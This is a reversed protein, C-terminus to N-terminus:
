AYIIRRVIESFQSEDKLLDEECKIRRKYSVSAFNGAYWHIGITNQNSITEQAFRQNFLAYIMNLLSVNPFMSLPFFISEDIIGFTDISNSNNLYNEIDGFVSTILKSGFCEYNQPDYFYPAQEFLKNYFYNYWNSAGAMISVPMYGKRLEGNKAETVFKTFSVNSKEYNLWNNVRDITNIFIFDTDAVWGGKYSLIYWTFLDSTHVPSMKNNIETIEPIDFNIINVNLELLKDLYNIESEDDIQESTKWLCEKERGIDLYLYINWHPHFKRFSYFTLYRLYSMTSNGWYFYIDKPVSCNLIAM